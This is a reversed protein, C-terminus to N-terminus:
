LLALLKPLFIMLGIIASIIASVLVAGAAVDKIIKIKDDYKKDITNAIQEIATNVMELSIVIGICLLCIMWQQLDIKFVFGAIIVAITFCVHIKMNREMKIATIIGEIAYKFSNLM